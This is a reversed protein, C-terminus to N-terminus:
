NFNLMNEPNAVTRLFRNSHEFGWKGTEEPVADIYITNKEPLGLLSRLRVSHSVLGDITERWLQLSLFTDSDSPLSYLLQVRTKGQAWSHAASLQETWSFWYFLM